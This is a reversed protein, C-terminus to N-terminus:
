SQAKLKSSQALAQLNSIPSQLNSIPSPQLGPHHTSEPYASPVSESPNVV